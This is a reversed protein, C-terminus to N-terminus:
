SAATSYVQADDGNKFAQYKDYLYKGTYLELFLRKWSKEQQFYAFLIICIQPCLDSHSSFCRLACFHIARPLSLSYILFLFCFSSGSASLLLCVEEPKTKRRRRKAKNDGDMDSISAYSYFAAGLAVVVSIILVVIRYPCVMTFLVFENCSFPPVVLADALTSTTCYLRRRSFPAPSFLIYPYKFVYWRTFGLIYIHTFVHLLHTSDVETYLDTISHYV